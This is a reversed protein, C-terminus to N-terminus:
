EKQQTKIYDLLNILEEFSMVQKSRKGYKSLLFERSNKRLQNHLPLTNIETAIMGILRQRQQEIQEENFANYQGTRYFIVNYEYFLNNPIWPMLVAVIKAKSFNQNISDTSGVLDGIKYKPQNKDVFDKVTTKLWDIPLPDGYAPKIVTKAKM